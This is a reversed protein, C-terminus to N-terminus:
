DRHSAPAALAQAIQEVIDDPKNRIDVNLAEDEGPAELNALQDDLLTSAFFHGRRSGVREALVERPGDLFVLRVDDADGRLVERYRRKLASCAFVHDDGQGAREVIAEHMAQLWPQRDADTLPTGAAMKAKNADSHFEDADSFGCGLRAALREGVTTKGSGSVGMIVVIVQVEENCGKPYSIARTAASGVETM